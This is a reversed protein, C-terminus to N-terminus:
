WASLGGDIILNHGTVYSSADSALFLLGQAMDEATAMRGLPVRASYKRDFEKNQGSAVGGPTLTNVRVGRHGWYTALYKTLGVVASKSASYVAPTNIPMGLYESGEYIRQDSGLIGYISCTQIISGHGREAMRAGAERAMYFYGDVNVEMIARWIDPSFSLIDDFFRALEPGKSAANNHLIDIPGLDREIKEITDKVAVPDAVDLEYSKARVGYRSSLRTAIDESWAVDVAAISAGYEALVDCFRKGLIGAAGTLVAVKGSLDYAERFQREYVPQRERMLMEVIKFDLPGDIDHSREDPMVFLGTDDYFVLPNEIFKTRDWVYISANMDYTAPADQRRVVNSHPPKSLVVAGTATTEVLNFYLLVGPM